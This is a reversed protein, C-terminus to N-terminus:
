GYVTSFRNSGRGQEPHYCFWESWSNGKREGMCLPSTLTITALNCTFATSDMAPVPWVHRDTSALTSSLQSCCQHQSQYQVACLSDENSSNLVGPRSWRHREWLVRTGQQISLVTGCLATPM